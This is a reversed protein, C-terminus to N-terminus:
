WHFWSNFWSSKKKHKEEMEANMIDGTTRIVMGLDQRNRTSAVYLQDQLDEVEQKKSMLESYVKSILDNMGSQINMQQKAFCASKDGEIKNRLQQIEKQMNDHQKNMTEMCAKNQVEMAELRELLINNQKQLVNNKERLAENNRRIADNDEQLSETERRLYENLRQFSFLENKLEVVPMVDYDYESM